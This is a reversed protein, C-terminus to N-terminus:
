ILHGLCVRMQLHICSFRLSDARDEREKNEAYDTLDREVAANKDYFDFCTVIGNAKNRENYEGARIRSWLGAQRKV